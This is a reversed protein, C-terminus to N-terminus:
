STTVLCGDETVIITHEAQVVTKRGAEVLVPYTILNKAILLEQFAEENQERPM